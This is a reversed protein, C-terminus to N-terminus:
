PTDSLVSKARESDELKLVAPILLGVAGMLATAGGGVWFWVPVGFKDALPGAIVLGLPAMATAVTFVLSFVRGQMDPAIAGQLIAGISGNVITNMTGMIVMAVIALIILNAPVAGVAALALGMLILGLLATLMRRKFGGWVTLLVGGAIIGGGSAADLWGLQLADGHFHKTVLLPLLAFTPTALFNILTAMLLVLMLGPWSWVYVLGERMDAWVSPKQDPAHKRVPQPIDVFFLPGVAFVASVLDIMLMGQIPMVQLLLAGLPSAIINLGGNLSQNLGQVRPLQEKPVLLVTSAGSASSQFSGGVARIFMLVYIHWIQVVNFFFLGALLATAMAITVDSIMMIARRNWRDVLTGVLPSLVVSPLLGVLSAVALITASGTQQTLYWILAFQVIQSGLLSIAQGGWITFFRPRWDPEAPTAPLTDTATM